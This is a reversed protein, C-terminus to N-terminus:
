KMGRPKLGPHQRYLPSMVEFRMEVLIAGVAARYTRLEVEGCNEKVFEVSEDLRAGFVLMLDSIEKAIREDEFMTDEKM